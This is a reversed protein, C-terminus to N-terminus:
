DAHLKTAVAAVQAGVVTDVVAAAADVAVALVAVATVAAVLVAVSGVAAPAPLVPNWQVPKM